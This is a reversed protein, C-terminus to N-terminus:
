KSKKRMKKVTEAKIKMRMYSLILQRIHSNKTLEWARKKSSTKIFPNANANILDEVIKAHGNKCAM